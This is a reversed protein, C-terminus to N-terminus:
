RLVMVEKMPAMSSTYDKMETSRDSYKVLATLLDKDPKVDDIPSESYILNRLLM